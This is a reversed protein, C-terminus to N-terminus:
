EPCILQVNPFYTRVRNPDRTLLPHGEVEALAGILFDPLVNTKNGDTNERYQRFAKAAQFLAANSYGCRALALSSIAEDVESVDAMGYSFESYVIDSVYVPGAAKAAGIQEVSWPTHETEEDVLDFLVSTDVFTTM